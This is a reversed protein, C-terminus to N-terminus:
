LVSLHIQKDNMIKLCVLHHQHNVQCQHHQHRTSGSPHVPLEASRHSLGLLRQHDDHQIQEDERLRHSSSAAESTPIAYRIGSPDVHGRRRAIIRLDVATALACAEGSAARFESVSPGM